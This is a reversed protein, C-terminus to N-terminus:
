LIRINQYANIRKYFRSTGADGVEMMLFQGDSTPIIRQGLSHSISHSYIYSYRPRNEPAMEEDRYNSLFQLTDPDIFMVMSSQHSNFMNRGFFCAIVGNNVTLSCNANYFPVSTGNNDYYTSTNLDVGLYERVNIQKGESDYKALAMVKEQDRQETTTYNAMRSYMVYLYGEYYLANAFNYTLIDAASSPNIENKLNYFLPWKRTKIINMNEDFTTWFVNDDSVYVSNFRSKEDIFDYTSAPKCFAYTGINIILDTSKNKEETQFSYTKINETAYVNDILFYFLILGIGLFIKLSFSKM